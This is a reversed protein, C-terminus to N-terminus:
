TRWLYRRKCEVYTELYRPLASSFLLVAFHIILSMRTWIIVGHPETDGEHEAAEGGAGECHVRVAEELVVLEPLGTKTFAM